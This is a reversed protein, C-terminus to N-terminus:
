WYIAIPYVVYGPGDLALEKDDVDLQLPTDSTAQDLQELDSFEDVDTGSIDPLEVDQEAQGLANVLQTALNRISDMTEDVLISDIVEAVNLYDWTESQGFSKSIRGFIMYNKSGIFAQMQDTWLKEPNLRMGFSFQTEGVDLSVGVADSYLLDHAQSIQDQNETDIIESYTEFLTLIRYLADTNIEGEIKVLDGESGEINNNGTWDKIDTKTQQYLKNFHYQDSIRKSTEFLQRGTKSGSLDAGAEADGLYPVNVSASLDAGGQGETTSESVERVEEPLAIDESALLSQVALDDLYVFQRHEM